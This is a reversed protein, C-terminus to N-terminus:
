RNAPFVPQMWAVKGNSDCVKARVYREEGNFRYTGRIDPVELLLQGMEGIFQIKYKTQHYPEV